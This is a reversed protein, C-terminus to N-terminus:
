SDVVEIRANDTLEEFENVTLLGEFNGGINDFYYYRVRINSEPCVVMVNSSARTKALWALFFIISASSTRSAM